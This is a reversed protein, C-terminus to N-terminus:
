LTVLLGTSWTSDIVTGAFLVIGGFRLWLTTLKTM